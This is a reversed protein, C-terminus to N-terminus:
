RLASNFKATDTSSDAGAVFHGDTLDWWFNWYGASWPPLLRRDADPVKFVAETWGAHDSRQYYQTMAGRWIVAQLGRSNPHRIERDRVMHIVDQTTTSGDTTRAIFVPGVRPGSSAGRQRREGATPWILVTDDFYVREDPMGDDGLLEIRLFYEEETSLSVGIAQVLVRFPNTTVTTGSTLTSTTGALPEVAFYLPTHAANPISFGEPGTQDAPPPNLNFAAHATGVSLLGVMGVIAVFAAKLNKACLM